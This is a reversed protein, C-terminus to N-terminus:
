LVPVSLLLHLRTDFAPIVELLRLVSAFFAVPLLLSAQLVSASTVLM